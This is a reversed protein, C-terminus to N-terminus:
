VETTCDVIMAGTMLEIMVVYMRKDQDDKDRASGPGASGQENRLSRGVRFQDRERSARRDFFNEGRDSRFHRVCGRDPIILQHRGQVQRRRGNCRLQNWAARASRASRVSM